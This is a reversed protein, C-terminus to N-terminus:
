LCQKCVRISLQLEAADGLQFYEEALGRARRALGEAAMPEREEDAESPAAMPLAGMEDGAATVVATNRGAPALLLPLAPPTFTLGAGAAAAPLEAAAPAAPAPLLTPGPATTAAPQRAAGPREQEGGRRMGSCGM